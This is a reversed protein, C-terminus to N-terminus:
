ESLLKIILETFNDKGLIIQLHKWTNMYRSIFTHHHHYLLAIVGLLVRELLTHFNTKYRGVNFVPRLWRCLFVPENPFRCTHGIKSGWFSRRSCSFKLPLYHNFSQKSQQGVHACQPMKSQNKSDNQGGAVVCSLAKVLWFRDVWKLRYIYRSCTLNSLTRSELAHIGHHTYRNDVNKIIKVRASM